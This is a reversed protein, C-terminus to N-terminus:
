VVIGAGRAGVAPPKKKREKSKYALQGGRRVCRTLYSLKRLKRKSKGDVHGNVPELRCAM